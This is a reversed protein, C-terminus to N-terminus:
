VGPREARNRPMGVAAAATALVIGGVLYTMQRGGGSLALDGSPSETSLIVTVGLWGLGVAWGGWRSRLAWVGGRVVVVLALWVLAVGWPVTWEGWPLDVVTRQAQVFAGSVGVVAGLLFLLLAGGWRLLPSM